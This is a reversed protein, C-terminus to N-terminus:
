SHGLRIGVPELQGRCWCFVRQQGVSHNSEQLNYNLWRTQANCSAMCVSADAQMSMYALPHQEMSAYINQTILCNRYHSTM